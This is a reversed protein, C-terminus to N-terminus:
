EEMSKCHVITKFITGNTFFRNNHIIWGDSHKVIVEDCQISKNEYFNTYLNKRRDKEYFGYSVLAIFLIIAITTKPYKFM